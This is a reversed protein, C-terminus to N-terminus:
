KSGRSVQALDACIPLCRAIDACVLPVPDGSFYPSALAQKMLWLASGHPSYLDVMLHPVM